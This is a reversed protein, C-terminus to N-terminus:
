SDMLDNSSIFIMKCDGQLFAFEQPPVQPVLDLMNAHGMGKNQSLISSFQQHFTSKIRVKRFLQKAGLTAKFYDKCRCINNKFFSYFSFRINSFSL